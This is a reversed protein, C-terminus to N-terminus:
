GVISSVDVSVDPFAALSISQGRARTSVRAYRDGSPERHVEIAGARVDVIWCEPVGMSAYLPGKTRRDYELSSDGVEVVLLARDPHADRYNGLPVVVLDPEPESEDPAVLSSQVRVIARGALRPVLDLNLAQIACAHRTGQPTMRVIVGRVLEVREDRFAGLEVLTDYDARRLRRVQADELGPLPAHTPM